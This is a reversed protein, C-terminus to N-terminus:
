ATGGTMEALRREFEAFATRMDAERDLTGFPLDYVYDIGSGPHTATREEQTIKEGKRRWVSLVSNPVLRGNTDYTYENHDYGHLVAFQTRYVACLDDIDVGLMLAVLADLEVLANRRDVARRLPSEPTWVREIDRSCHRRLIQVDARFTDDWCEEWLDKYADSVCNLELTRRVLSPLLPHGRDVMPLRRVSAANIGSKPVARIALDAVLSAMIGAAVVVDLSSVPVVAASMVGHIHAPGPPIIAAQLTRVNGIKAMARWAVRYLDRAAIEGDPGWHTYLSDYLSVNGAAKYETVPIADSALEEFDNESWDQNHKMTANVNKFLPTAVFIHPGQLVAERWKAPGWKSVFRGKTRDSKEHWGPSFQLGIEDLRRHRAASLTDSVSRNVTYLMRTQITPSGASELVDRWLSLVADDVDILRGLHPRRDWNGAPDKYGPEPGTGDHHFSREVTDPHYLAVAHRFSVERPAGYVHVGYIAKDDIEFLLLENILQWHRRLRPYTQARLHLAKEDTFHTEPHVLASQGQPSAHKWVQSMFCRYLDPQLGSLYPYNTSAGLYERSAIVESTADVVLDRVGEISLTGALRAKRQDESPKVALQWWPDGEALLSDVDAAPRVWPPNGVQLDFGGRAFVTAFDLEWHHFAQRESVREGLVIWPQVERVKAVPAAAAFILDNLEEEGLEEWSMASVLTDMGKAKQAKTTTETGLIQTCADIWEQLTPPKVDSGTLPWFWMSCWLDMILRLRRYAGNEDALSAEIEERSVAATHTPTERGWLEIVRSSEAEAIRLRRLAFQWLKEVREGLVTLQQMQKSTPKARMSRRWAKLAAVAEPALSAVDKPVETGSGWGQAPLLFHHVRSSTASFASGEALNEALETLPVDYPTSTLWSKDKLQEQSYVARRAGILSNGRRLRLGFWPAQLGAVMTDLWLSVEALEVATANLDVGHVQHLAVHAKTRQLETAYQDPDIREDLEDQRRKLYEAALQRVAEIAFAGSGLAPECVTLQLIEEATTRHGDQDLLEALAQSVTFRTLVEPTYYSASQQRERGALRFVFTGKEHRVARKEGTVEDEVTVFDKSDLHDARAVPVVWSGKSSDGDKAVEFLDEEAFFGTYSMLGEYVAGLQNIGLEVYSIFGRDRGKSEKSLLLHRLVRQLAVNGLAVEDILATAGPLFLDARVPNFILGEADGTEDSTPEAAFGHGEDVLRFLKELSEYLHRGSRSNAGHLEVLTLERLRDLSYGQEYESAGTPLVGLEPSAEAYLLFLIRYLYRLSQIALPQAQGQPLPELGQAARRSVVENAIVEISLRVGERLDKSVGVTHKVSDELVTSWWIAGDADPALSGAELCTLARDVEGGRKTDNREAVTQLDVALYRGEPWREQEAIVAWRGALVLVYAPAEDRVFLSSVLRAVSKYEIGDEAIFPEALSPADKAVVDDVADAPLASLIALPAQGAIGHSSVWLLPGEPHTTFQGTSYGLITLLDHHLDDADTAEAGDALLNSLSKELRGRAATFRSHSTEVESADWEKRREFVKGQFSESKADTTFYHESIWDEGVVFADSVPM